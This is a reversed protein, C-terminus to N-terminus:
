LSEISRIFMKFKNLNDNIISKPGTGKFYYPESDTLVIAAMLAYDDLETTAGGMGMSSKLYTGDIYSTIIELNNNYFQNRIVTDSPRSGEKNKFQGYWHELNADVGGGIGSFVAIECEGNDGPINLQAIRMASSPKERKWGQPIIAQLRGIQVYGTKLTVRSEGRNIVQPESTINNNISNSSKLYNNEQNLIYISLIISLFISFTIILSKSNM